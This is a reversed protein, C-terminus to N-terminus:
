IIVHAIANIIYKLYVDSEIKTKLIEKESTSLNELIEALEQATEWKNNEIKQYLNYSKKYKNHENTILEDEKQITSVRKRADLLHSFFCSLWLDFELTKLKSYFKKINENGVEFNNTINDWYFTDIGQNEILNEIFLKQSFNWDSLYKDPIIWWNESKIKEEIDFNLGRFDRDTIVSIKIKFPNWEKRIFAKLYRDFSLWNLNIVSVWRSDLFWKEWYLIDALQPIILAEAIWEVFIIWKAFFLNSKTVDLFRGLHKYDDDWLWTYNDAMSYVLEDRCIFVNKLNVKSAINPSHSTIFIQLDKTYRELYNILRIQWQPHIHAEIEEILACWLSTNKVEELLLLETAILLLNSTWLWPKRKDDWFLLSLSKVISSLSSSDLTVNWKEESSNELLKCFIENIKETINYEKWNEAEKETSFYNDVEIKLTKFLTELPHETSKSSKLLPHSLLIQSLRSNYWSSLEAEANRLPKLYVARFLDKIEPELYSWWDESEFTWAKISTYFSNDFSKRCEFSIKICFNWEEDIGGWDLLKSAQGDSFDNLFVEIKFSNTWNYFDTNQIKYYDNSATWLVLKLSDIIATKWSDNPWLFLNLWKNFEIELNQFKRFNTLKLNKIYM